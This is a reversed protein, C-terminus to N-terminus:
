PAVIRARMGPLALERFDGLNFTYVHEAGSRAACALLLADHIRAGNKTLLKETWHGVVDEALETLRARAESTPVVDIARVDM